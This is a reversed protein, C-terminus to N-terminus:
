HTFYSLVLKILSEFIVVGVAGFVVQKVKKMAPAKENDDATYWKVLFYGGMAAAVVASIAIIWTMADNGLRIIDTVFQPQTAIIITSERM